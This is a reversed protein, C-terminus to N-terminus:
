SESLNLGQEPSKYFRLNRPRVEPFNAGCGRKEGGEEGLEEEHLILCLDYGLGM